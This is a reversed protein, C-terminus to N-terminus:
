QDENDLDRLVQFEDLGSPLGYIGKRLREPLRGLVEEAAAYGADIEDPASTFDLMGGSDTSIVVVPRRQAATLLAHVSQGRILHAYAQAGVEWWRYERVENLPAAAHGTDLIILTETDDPVTRLPMGAVLGGDILYRGAVEMPPFIGPLACSAMVAEPLSGSDLVVRAGTELDTCVLRLPILLDEFDAPLFEGLREIIEEAQKRSQRASMSRAVTRVPGSLVVDEMWMWFDRMEDTGRGAALAAANVSGLSTGVAYDLPIEREALSNLMGIQAPTRALGFTTVLAIPAKVIPEESPNAM